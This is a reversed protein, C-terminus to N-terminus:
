FDVSLDFSFGQLGLDEGPRTIRYTTSAYDMALNQKWWYQAEYLFQFTIRSHRICTHWGLGLAGQMTPTMKSRDVDIDIPLANSGHIYNVMDQNTSLIAGACSMLVTWQSAVHWYGQAGIVPGTGQFEQKTRVNLAALSNRLNASRMVYGQNIWTNRLGLFLSLSFFRNLACANCLDVDLNQYRLRQETHTATDATCSSLAPMLHQIANDSFHGVVHNIKNHFFTYNALLSWQDTIHIGTETRLGWSWHFDAKQTNNAAGDNRNFFAKWLLADAKFYFRNDPVESYVPRNKVLFDNSSTQPLTEHLSPKPNEFLDTEVCDQATLSFVPWFVGWFSLLYLHHSAWGMNKAIWALKLKGRGQSILFRVAHTRAVLGSIAVFTKLGM